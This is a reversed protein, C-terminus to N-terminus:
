KVTFRKPGSTIEFYEGDENVCKWGAWIVYEGPEAPTFGYPPIEPIQDYEIEITEKFDITKSGFYKVSSRVTLPSLDFGDFDEAKEICVVYPRGSEDCFMETNESSIYVNVPRTEGVKIDFHDFTCEFWSWGGTYVQKRLEFYNNMECYKMSDLKWRGDERVFDEEILLMGDLSHGQFYLKASNDTIEALRASGTDVSIPVGRYAVVMILGNEDEMFYPHERGFIENYFEERNMGMFNETCYEAYYDYLEDATSAIDAPIRYYKEEREDDSGIMEFIDAFGYNSYVLDDRYDAEAACEFLEEDMPLFDISGSVTIKQHETSYDFEIYRDSGFDAAECYSNFVPGELIMARGNDGSLEPFKECSEFCLESIRDNEATFFRFQRETDGNDTPIDNELVIYSGQQSLAGEEPPYFLFEENEYVTCSSIHGTINRNEDATYYDLILTGSYLHDATKEGYFNLRYVYNTTRIQGLSVPEDAKIEEASIQSVTESVAIVTEQPATEIVDTEEKNNQFEGCGTLVAALLVATILSGKKNM